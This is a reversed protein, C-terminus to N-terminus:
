WRARVLETLKRMDLKGNSLLPMEAQSFCLIRRPVKYSSLKGTLQQRLAPEDVDTAGDTIIVAAVSQGRRADPIGLVICPLGGTMGRLVAEVERPAVNAGSTKIMNSIRGKLFFLGDANILGMDGSRWWGDADFTESRLKGYYGEMMLPGRLWLEGTAGRGCSEGTDPDVIRAEFGPLFPGCSGRLDEPLDGDESSTTVASGGETMGYAEHRLGPDSPRADGAVLPYLTGRRISSFNWKAFSPDATLWAITQVYGNTMTPQEREIFDLVESAAGASCHVIRAGAILTGILSFSFGTIWFWPAPSFLVEEMGYHRIENIDARHRILNGHTHIVGKPTGTSGSTYIMVCRDAPSVRAEVAELFAEEVAAASEELAEISWGGDWDSPLPGRLWIYRLWPASMSHLPPPESFRLEPLAERLVDGYNRSRFASAALLFAADSQELLARLEDPTSMTSLPVLVGGIRLVALASILFDPGNPFLIAVHAGKRVGASLLARALRRSYKEAEAYSLRTNDSVLLIREGHELAQRRLLTPLTLPLDNM